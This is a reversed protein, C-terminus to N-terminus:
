CLYRSSISCQLKMKTVTTQSHEILYILIVEWYDNGMAKLAKTGWEPNSFYYGHQHYHKWLKYPMSLKWIRFFPIIYSYSLSPVLSLFSSLSKASCKLCKLLDYIWVSIDSWRTERVSIVSHCYIRQTYTFPQLPGSHKCLMESSFYQNSCLYNWNKSSCTKECLM